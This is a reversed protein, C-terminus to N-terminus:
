LPPAIGLVPAAKKKKKFSGSRTEWLLRLEVPEEETVGKLPQCRVATPIPTIVVRQIHVTVLLHQKVTYRLTESKQLSVMVLAVRVLVGNLQPQNVPESIRDIIM